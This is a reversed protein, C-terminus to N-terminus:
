QERQFRQRLTGPKFGFEREVDAIPASQHQAIYRRADEYDDTQRLEGDVVFTFDEDVPTAVFPKDAM